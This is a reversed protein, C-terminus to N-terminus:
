LDATFSSTLSNSYGMFNDLTVSCIDPEDQSVSAVDSPDSAWGQLASFFMTQTSLLPSMNIKPM